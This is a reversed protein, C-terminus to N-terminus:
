KIPEAHVYYESNIPDEGDTKLILVMRSHKTRWYAKIDADEPLAKFTKCLSAKETEKITSHAEYYQDMIKLLGERERELVGLMYEKDNKDKAGKLVIRLEAYPKTIDEKYATPPTLIFERSKDLLCYETLEPNKSNYRVNDWDYGFFGDNVLYLRKRAQYVIRGDKYGNAYVITNDHPTFFYTSWWYSTNLCNTKREMIGFSDPMDRCDSTWTISDYYNYYANDSSNFGYEDTLEFTVLCFTQFVPDTNDKDDEAYYAKIKFKCNDPVSRDIDTDYTYSKKMMELDTETMRKYVIMGYISKYGNSGDSTAGLKQITYMLTKGNSEDLKLIQMYRSDTTQKNSGFLIFGKDMDYTWSVRSFCFAPLADSYFYSFAQQSTEFGFHTPSGGFRDKWFEEKSLKGNEQVEYTAISEWGYGKVKSQIEEAAIPKRGKLVCCGEDNVTYTQNFLNMDLKCQEVSLEESKDCSGFVVTCAVILAILWFKKTM